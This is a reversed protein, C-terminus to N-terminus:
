KNNELEKFKAQMTPNGRTLKKVSLDQAKDNALRLQNSASTLNDRVKELHEITKNIETIATEFKNKATEYNKGFKDQFDLLKGEFNTIDLNQNRAVELERKYDLANLSANRLLSIISIFCQPRVVYMKPYKYSVDVIGSNYYDNDAELMSVLVAYECNKEKRDKDLEKLFDENKHKTSTTDNENKMEFMISLVEVGNDDTERYIFDGKSGTKVDNDKEFYANPFAAMRIKNFEIQCHQELTEGVLKTSMKTKLEKYYDVETQKQKLQTEYNEKQHALEVEHSSDKNTIENKLDKIEDNLKAITEAKEKEIKNKALEIQADQLNKQKEENAKYEALMMDKKAIENGLKLELNKLAAEKELSANRLKGELESNASKIKELEIESSLKEEKKFIELKEHVKEELEKNFEENKIQELINEYSSEDITFVEHCHPCKIQPM